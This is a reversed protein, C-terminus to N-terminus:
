SLVEKGSRLHLILTETTADTHEIEILILDELVTFHLANVELIKRVPTRIM